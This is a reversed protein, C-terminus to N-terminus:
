LAVTRHSLLLGQIELMTGPRGAHLGDELGFYEVCTRCAIVPVGRKELAQLHGLLPSEALLHRVGENYCVIAVVPLPEREGLLRVFNALLAMGLRDDGRGMGPGALALVVQETLAPETM